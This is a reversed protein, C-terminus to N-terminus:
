GACRATGWTIRLQEAAFAVADRAATLMATMAFFGHIMGDWRRHVTATGAAELRRAYEDGEDRLPDYGATLVIAAPLKALDTAKGPCAYADLAHAPDSLYQQWFWQMLPRTLLYGHANEAYSPTEFDCDVVPYILLQSVLAPGGRDRAMLAVVAAMNGGASDGGVSVRSPDGGLSEAIEVAWSTAAYCDEVGAPYPHEPALRYDASVVICDAAVALTRCTGDHTDVDGVVFGGGHFFVLVPLLEDTRPRFVRVPVNGGPGPAFLESVQAVEPGTDSMGAMSGISKRLMQPTLRSSDVIEAEAMARVFPVCEPDLPM